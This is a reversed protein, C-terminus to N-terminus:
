ACKVQCSGQWMTMMHGGVVCVNWVFSFSVFTEISDFVM